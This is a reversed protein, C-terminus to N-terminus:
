SFFGCFNKKNKIKKWQLHLGEHGFGHGMILSFFNCIDTPGSRRTNIPLCVIM